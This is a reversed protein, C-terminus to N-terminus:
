LSRLSEHVAAMGRAARVRRVPRPADQRLPRRSTERTSDLAASNYSHKRRDQEVVDASVGILVNTKWKDAIDNIADQTSKLRQRLTASMQEAPLDAPVEVWDYPYSTEPWVILDIRKGGKCAHDTLLRVHQFMNKCAEDNNSTNVTNKIRQDINSQILAVTPGDAFDTQSLRWFGYGLTAVLLLTVAVAPLLLRRPASLEPLALWRRFRPLRCLAEFLVANVAAILFSVGFVGVLDAIQIVPLVDHQSYGLLYWAFGGMLESRLYELATWVVPVTLGLPLRTRRDLMRLLAIALPFYLAIYLALGIWPFYMRYDAVRMWQLAPLFFALGGVYAARYVRRGSTRVLALLPVLAIWALWGWAVPFYCLWLLLGTLLAPVFVLPRRQPLPVLAPETQPGADLALLPRGTMDQTNTPM